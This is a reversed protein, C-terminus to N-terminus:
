PAKPGVADCVFNKVKDREIVVSESTHQVLCPTIRDDKPTVAVAPSKVSVTFRKSEGPPLNKACRHCIQAFKAREEATTDNNGSAKSPTGGSAEPKATPVQPPLPAAPSPSGTPADAVTEDNESDDDNARAGKKRRRPRDDDATEDSGSKKAAAEEGSRARHNKSARGAFFLAGGGVLVLVGLVVFIPWSAGKRVPPAPPRASTLVAATTSGVAPPPRPAAGQAGAGSPMTADFPTAPAAELVRALAAWAEDASAFRQSRDRAVARRFWEDFGPPLRVQGARSSAPPLEHLLIEQLLQAVTGDKVSPARWYHQGTMAHFAVLGFAWVDTAPSVPEGNAQEPSMWAPSGVSATPASGLAGLEKAIGFDLIKVVFPSAGGTALFVNEPKVDRHAIGARHAASLGAALEGLVRHAEGPQLPGARAIRAGLTEGELLEMALWPAGLKPDIGAAITEVIHPSQVRGRVRAEEAFRARSKEDRALEPNMLKLARQRHTSLQTAVYVAGMGGRGLLREVRYDGGIITGELGYL